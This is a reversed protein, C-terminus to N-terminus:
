PQTAPSSAPQSTPQTESSGTAIPPHPRLIFQAQPPKPEPFLWGRAAQTLLAGIIGMLLSWIALIIFSMRRKEKKVQHLEADKELIDVREALKKLPGSFFKIEELEGEPTSVENAYLSHELSGEAVRPKQGDGYLRQPIPSVPSIIM